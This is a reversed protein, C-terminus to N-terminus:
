QGSWSCSSSRAPLAPVHLNHPAIEARGRAASSNREVAERILDSRKEQEDLVAEIRALTGAPVRLLKNTM